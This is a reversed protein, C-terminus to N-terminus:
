RKNIKDWELDSFSPGVTAETIKIGPHGANWEMIKIEGENTISVDWGIVGFHPLKMHIRECEEVAKEFYPIEQNSFVFGTDPHKFYRKWNDDLGYDGLTGKNDNIPIHIASAAEVVQSNERGVQLYSARNQIINDQDKVTTIRLTAVSGTIIDDFWGSQKIPEQIVADGHKFLESINFNNKNLKFVGKGQLSNNIKLFCESENEFLIDFAETPEIINFDLDYLTNDIVYLKDPLFDSEIIKKSLTKISSIDGIGKNIKPVVIYGYYNDPIWGEVFGQNNATYVYLWYAYVSSGLVEKAYDKISTKDKKSLTYNTDQEIAKLAKIAETKHRHDYRIKLIKRLMEGPSKM